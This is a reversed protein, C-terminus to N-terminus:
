FTVPGIIIPAATTSLRIDPRGGGIRLVRRDATWQGGECGRFTCLIEGGEAIRAEVSPTESPAIKLAIAGEQSMAEVDGSVRELTIGGSATSIKYHGSSQAVSIGGRTAHATVNGSMHRIAVGGNAARVDVTARRPVYLIMNVWWGQTDDNRPGYAVIEGKAHSVNIAGLARVAQTKTNAVAFRCIILRAFPRDWGRISVGGEESALVKLKSIGTLNIERQGQDNVQSRFKTFTTKYFHECDTAEAAVSHDQESGIIQRGPSGAATTGFLAVALAFSLARM